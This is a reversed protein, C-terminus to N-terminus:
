DAVIRLLEPFMLGYYADFPTVVLGDVRSAVL